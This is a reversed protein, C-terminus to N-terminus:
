LREFHLEEKINCLITQAVNTISAATCDIVLKGCISPQFLEINKYLIDYLTEASQNFNKNFWLNKDILDYNTHRALSIESPIRLYVYFFPAFQFGKYIVRQLMMLDMATKANCEVGSFVVTSPWLRDCISVANEKTRELCQNKQIENKLYFEISQCDGNLGECFENLVFANIAETRLLDSLQNIVSTKGAGPLGELVLNM